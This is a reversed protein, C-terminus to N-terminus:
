PGLLLFCVIASHMKTHAQSVISCVSDVSFRLIGFSCFMEIIWFPVSAFHLEGPAKPISRIDQVGESVAPATWVGLEWRDVTCHWSGSFAWTKLAMSASCASCYFLVVHHDLISWTIAKFQSVKLFVSDCGYNLHCIQTHRNNPDENSWCKWFGDSVRIQSRREIDEGLQMKWLWWLLCQKGRWRPDVKPGPKPLEVDTGGLFVLLWQSERCVVSLM